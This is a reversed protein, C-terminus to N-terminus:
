ERVSLHEHVALWRGGRLALVITERERSSARTGSIEAVTDVDHSFVAVPGEIQMRRNSSVCTLVRFGDDEWRRWLAQYAARTELRHPVNHFVFTADPAFGGFYADARHGGFDDIIRDVATLADSEASSGGSDSAAAVTTM